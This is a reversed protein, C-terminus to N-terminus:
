RGSGGAERGRVGGSSWYANTERANSTSAKSVNSTGISVGKNPMLIDWLTDEINSTGTYKTNGRSERTM